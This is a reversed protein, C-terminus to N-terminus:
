RLLQENQSGDKIKVPIHDYWMCEDLQSIIQLQTKLDSASVFGSSNFTICSVLLIESFVM